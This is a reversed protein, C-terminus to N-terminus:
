KTFEKIKNIKLKNEKKLKIFEKGELNKPIKDYCKIRKWAERGKGARYNPLMGRITRKVIMESKNPYQPGKQSSGVRSRKKHFEEEIEERNGTIIVESCNVITIEEGKLSEKAAYSALRGLVAGSGDIIRM